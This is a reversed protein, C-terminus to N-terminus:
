MRQQELAQGMQQLIQQLTRYFFHHSRLNPHILCLVYQQIELLIAANGPGAAM